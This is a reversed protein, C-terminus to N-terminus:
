EWKSAEVMCCTCMGPRWHCANWHNRSSPSLDVIM